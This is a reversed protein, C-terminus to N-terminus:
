QQGTSCFLECDRILFYRLALSLVHNKSGHYIIKTGSVFYKEQIRSLAKVTPPGAVDAPLQCMAGRMLIVRRLTVKIACHIDADLFLM